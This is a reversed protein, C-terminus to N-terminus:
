SRTPLLEPAPAPLSAEGSPRLNNNYARLWSGAKQALVIHICIASWLSATHNIAELVEGSVVRAGMKSYSYTM